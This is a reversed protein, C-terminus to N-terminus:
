GAVGGPGDDRAAARIGAEEDVGRLVLWGVFLLVVVVSVGARQSGFVQTLVGLIFPGLFATAKGSFAFFGFFENEKDPPVLRGLLSRSASQNPGAFIGVVIGAVWFLTKTPALVALTAAAILGWLSIAITRKGGLRDDLFGMAFAGAGAAVNLVIGFVLIEEFTFGFTGAAYIGGFAFITILGDNYFLRALLLRVIQRYRRIDVFTERLQRYAERTVRGARSVRSRDERLVLFTPLSFVAFWVAVLLNTARINEAGEKSFGLWPTEPQVLAVLAVVLAVLGGAYGLGWGIGSVRGIRDRPAIDPLFANYFVEATEYAVNAVVFCALALVVSGASEPRIWHLAAVFAICVVTTAVLFLKRYGGRDALAGLVPSLLAVVIGTVTVGRSWLVTGREVGGPVAQTFYTAYIFTVVLTTFPSNAFDFLAWAWIERPRGRPRAAATAAPAGVNTQTM